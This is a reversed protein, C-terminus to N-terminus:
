SHGARWTPERPAELWAEFVRTLDQGSAKSWWAVLTDRGQSTFRHTSLWRRALSWFRDDGLRQRLTDWMLAPIYYVNGEGFSGPLYHAPPGFSSRLGATFRSWGRLIQARSESGHGSRWNAEALYTAMGENMWVDSWDDATVTDGYWQHALEHVIVDRSLTFRNDGLTITSQTEMASNSPVVLVGLTFFPYRGVLGELYAVARSAYRVKRLV